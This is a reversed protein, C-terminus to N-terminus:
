IGGARKRHGPETTLHDLESALLSGPTTMERKARHVHGWKM